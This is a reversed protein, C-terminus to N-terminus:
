SRVSNKRQICKNIATVHSACVLACYRTKAFQRSHSKAVAANWQRPLADFPYKGYYDIDIITDPDKRPYPM